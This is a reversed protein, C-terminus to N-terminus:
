CTPQQMAAARARKVESSTPVAEGSKRLRSRYFAIGDPTTQAGPIAAKVAELAEADTAHARIAEEAVSAVTLGGLSPRSPAASTRSAPDAPQAVTATGARAEWNTLVRVGAERLATRYSSATAKTM